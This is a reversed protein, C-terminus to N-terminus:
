RTEVPTINVKTVSVQQDYYEQIFERHDRAEARTKFASPLISRSNLDKLGWAEVSNDVVTDNPEDVQECPNTCVCIPVYIDLSISNLGEEEDVQEKNETAFSDELDANDLFKEIVDLETSVKVVADNVEEWYKANGPETDIWEFCDTLGLPKVHGTFSKFARPDERYARLLFFMASLKKQTDLESVLTRTILEVVHEDRAVLESKEM